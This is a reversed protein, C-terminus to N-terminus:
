YAGIRIPLVGPFLLLVVGVVLLIIVGIYIIKRWPEKIGVFYDIVAAVVALVIATVIM